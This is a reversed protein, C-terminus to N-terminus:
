KRFLITKTRKWVEKNPESNFRPYDTKKKKISSYGIQPDPYDDKNPLSMGTLSMLSEPSGIDEGYHIVNSQGSMRVDYENYGDPKITSHSYFNRPKNKNKQEKDIGFKKYAYDKMNNSVREMIHPIPNLISDIIENFEILEEQNENLPTNNDFIYFNGFLEEFAQINSKSDCFKTYKSETLSIGRKLLTEEEVDVYVMSLNYSDRDLIEKMSIISSLDHANGKLVFQEPLGQKNRRKIAQEFTLESLAFSECVSKIVVDKGSSPCGIIFIANKM